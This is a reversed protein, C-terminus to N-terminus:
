QPTGYDRCSDLLRQRSRARKDLLGALKPDAADTTVVQESYSAFSLAEALAADRNYRRLIPELQSKAEDYEKQRKTKDGMSRASTVKAIYAEVATCVQAPLPVSSPGKRNGPVQAEATAGLGVCLAGIVLCLVLRNM